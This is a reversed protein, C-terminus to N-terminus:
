KTKAAEEIAQKFSNVDRAMTKRGNIFFTPTGQVDSKMGLQLDKALIEEWQADKGKYDKWFKDVNLGIKQALEKFRDDNLNSNDALIADAMEFYKGQEGAALAAKAGPKAFPHFSLPFNKIMYNAKDPVAKVASVLVPHFRACFPCQFDVFEVVTVPADKKGFVPTHDVPIDYATNFDEPPPGSPQPPQGAMAAKIRAQTQDVFASVAKTQAGITELRSDMSKQSEMIQNQKELIAQLQPERIQNSIVTVGLLSGASVFLIISLIKNGM